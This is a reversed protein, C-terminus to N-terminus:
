VEHITRHNEVISKPPNKHFDFGCVTCCFKGEKVTITLVQSVIGWEEQWSRQGRYGFLHAELM